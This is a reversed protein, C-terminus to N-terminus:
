VAAPFFAPELALQGPAFSQEQSLQGPVTGTSTTQHAELYHIAAAL